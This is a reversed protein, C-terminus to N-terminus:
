QWNVNIKNESAYKKGASIVRNMRELYGASYKDMITKILADIEPQPASQDYLKALQTFETKYVPLVYEHLSRSAQIMEKTETTESLNKIDGLNKEVYGIKDVIVETRKRPRTQDKTGEVLTVSPFKLERILADDSFGDITNINLVAVDFYKEPTATNCSNILYALCIALTANTFRFRM